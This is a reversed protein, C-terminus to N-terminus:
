IKTPVSGTMWESSQLYETICSDHSDTCLKVHKSGKQCINYMYPKYCNVKKNNIFDNQVDMTQIRLEKNWSHM